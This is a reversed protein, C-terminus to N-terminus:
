LGFFRMIPGEFAQIVEILILLIVIIELYKSTKSHQLEAIVKATDLLAEIKANFKVYRDDLEYLEAMEDFFEEAEREKWTISPKDLMMIYSITTHKFALIKGISSVTKKESTRIKGNRLCVVTAEIEDFVRDVSHEIIELAVSKALVLATMDINFKRVSSTTYQLFEIESEQIETDEVLTYVESEGYIIDPNVSKISGPIKKIEEIFEQMEGDNYNIFVIVGFHYIYVAKGLSGNAKIILPEEWKFKKSIGLSLSIEAINFESCIGIAVFRYKMIEKDIEDSSNM